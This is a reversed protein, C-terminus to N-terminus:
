RYLGLIQTLGSAIVFGSIFGFLILLCDEVSLLQSAASKWLRSETETCTEAKNETESQAVSLKGIRVRRHEKIGQETELPKALIHTNPASMVKPKRLPRFPGTRQNIVGDRM